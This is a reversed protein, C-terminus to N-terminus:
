VLISVVVQSEEFFDINFLSFIYYKRNHTRNITIHIYQLMNTIRLLLTYALFKVQKTM